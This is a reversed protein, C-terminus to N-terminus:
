QIIKVREEINEVRQGDHVVPRNIIIHGNATHDVNILRDLTFTPDLQEIIKLSLTTSALEQWNDKYSMVRYVGWTSGQKSSFIGVENCGDGNLDSELTLNSLRDTSRFITSDARNIILLYDESIVRSSDREINHYLSVNDATGNGDIDGQITDILEANDIVSLTAKTQESKPAACSLTTLAIIFSFIRYTM